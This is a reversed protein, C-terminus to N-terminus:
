IEGRWLGHLNCYAFVAVPEDDILAFSVKPEDGPCLAKRQGGKKTELYIWEIWHEDTMPHVVSGVQVVVSKGEVSAVPVHKEKAADVTNPELLIMPEGCCIIEVGSDHIVGILNGCHKCFQFRGQKKM